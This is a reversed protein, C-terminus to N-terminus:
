HARLECRARGGLRLERTGPGSPSARSVGASQPSRCCRHTLPDSGLRREPQLGKQATPGRRPLSQPKRLARGERLAVTGHVCLGPVAPPTSAPKGPGAWSRFSGPDLGLRPSGSLRPPTTPQRLREHKKQGRAMGRAETPRGPPHVSEGRARVTGLGAPQRNECQAM